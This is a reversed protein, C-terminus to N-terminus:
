ENRRRPCSILSLLLHRYRGIRRREEWFEGVVALCFDIVLVPDAHIALREPKGIRGLKAVRV